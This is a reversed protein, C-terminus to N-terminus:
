RMALMGYSRSPAIKLRLSNRTCANSRTSANTIDAAAELAENDTSSRGVAALKEARARIAAIREPTWPESVKSPRRRWNKEDQKLPYRSSGGDEEEAGAVGFAGPDSMNNWTTEIWGDSRQVHAIRFSTSTVTSPILSPAASM